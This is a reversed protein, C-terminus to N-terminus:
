RGLRDRDPQRRRVVTGRQGHRRRGCRARPLVGWRGGVQIGERSEGEYTFVARAVSPTAGPRLVGREGQGPPLARHPASRRRRLADGRSRPSGTILDIETRRRAEVDELM